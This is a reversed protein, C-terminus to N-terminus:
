LFISLKLIVVVRVIDLEARNVRVFGVRVIGSGIVYVRLTGYLTGLGRIGYTVIGLGMVHVLGYSGVIVIVNGVVM